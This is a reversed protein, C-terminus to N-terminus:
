WTGHSTGLGPSDMAFTLIKSWIYESCKASLDEHGFCGHLHNAVLSSTSCPTLQQSPAQTRPLPPWAMALYNPEQGLSVNRLTQAKWGPLKRLSEDQWRGQSSEFHFTTKVLGPIHAEPKPIPKQPVIHGRPGMIYDWFHYPM